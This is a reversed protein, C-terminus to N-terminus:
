LARYLFCGLCTFQHSHFCGIHIDCRGAPMGLQGAARMGARKNAHTGAWGGVQMGAECGVSAAWQGLEAWQGKGM